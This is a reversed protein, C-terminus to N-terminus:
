SRSSVDAVRFYSVVALAFSPVLLALSALVCLVIVNLPTPHLSLVLPLVSPLLPVLPLPVFSGLSLPVLACPPLAVPVQPPGFFLALLPHAALPTPGLPLVTPMTSCGPLSLLEPLPVFAPVLLPLRVFAPLPVPVLLPATPAFILALLDLACFLLPALLLLLV